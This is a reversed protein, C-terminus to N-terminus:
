GIQFSQFIQPNHPSRRHKMRGEFSKSFRFTKKWRTAIVYIVLFDDNWSISQKMLKEVKHITEYDFFM